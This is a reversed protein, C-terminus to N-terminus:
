ATPLFLFFLTGTVYFSAESVDFIGRSFDTMHRVLSLQSWWASIGSEFPLWGSAQYGIVWLGIGLALSLMAAVMQSRTLSSTFCGLSVFLAGVLSIGVFTCGVIGGVFPASEGTVQRLVWLMLM